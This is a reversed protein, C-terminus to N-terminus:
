CQPTDCWICTLTKPNHGGPRLAEDHQVHTLTPRTSLGPTKSGPKKKPPSPLVPNGFLDIQTGPRLRRSGRDLAALAEAVEAAKAVVAEMDMSASHTALSTLNSLCPTNAEENQHKSIKFCLRFGLLM